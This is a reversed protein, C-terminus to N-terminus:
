STPSLCKVGLKKISMAAWMASLSAGVYLAVTAVSSLRSLEDHISLYIVSNLVVTLALVSSVTHLSFSRLKIAVVTSFLFWITLANGVNDEFYVGFIFFISAGLFMTGTLM